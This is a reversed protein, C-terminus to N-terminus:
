KNKEREDIDYDYYEPEEVFVPLVPDIFTTPIEQVSVNLLRRYKENLRQHMVTENLQKRRRLRVDRKSHSWHSMQTIVHEWWNKGLVDEYLKLQAVATPTLISHEANFILLFVDVSKAVDKIFQM